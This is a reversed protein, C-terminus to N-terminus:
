PELIAEADLTILVDHGVVVGGNELEGNWSVGFDHRNIQTRGTFGARTRPGLDQDGEWWPTSWQGLYRVDLVVERHVGRITLEGRVKFDSEGIQESFNGDFTIQPHNEVDLFDASRLHADREPEGSWIKAAAIEVHLSGRLPNQLDFDLWGHVDSFQGRVWTVMMHRVSFSAATHGPEFVWRPM